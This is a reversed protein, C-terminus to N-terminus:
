TRIIYPFKNTTLLCTAKKALKRFFGIKSVPRMREEWLENAWWPYTVLMEIQTKPWLWLTILNPMDGSPEIKNPAVFGLLLFMFRTQIYIKWCILWVHPSIRTSFCSWEKVTLMLKERDAAYSLSALIDEKTLYPFDQLIEEVSMGSAMYELIDYVTVRMGRICPQGGRKGAEITIIGKYDVSVGKQKKCFTKGIWVRYYDAQATEAIVWVM